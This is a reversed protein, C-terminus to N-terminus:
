NFDTDCIHAEKKGFFFLEYIGAPKVLCKELLFGLREAQLSRRCFPQSKLIQMGRPKLAM